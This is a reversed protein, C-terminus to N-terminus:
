LYLYILVGFLYCTGIGSHCCKRYEHTIRGGQFSFYMLIFDAVEFACRVSQVISKQADKIVSDPTDQPYTVLISKALALPLFGFIFASSLKM